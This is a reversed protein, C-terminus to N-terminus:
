SFSILARTVRKNELDSLAQNVDDLRYPPSLLENLAFSGSQYLRDYRPIDEDPKGGGGWSGRITKGCILDFPDIKIKDGFKPHSAFILAGGNQRVLSFGNEITAVSGAAEIVFDLLNNDNIDKVVASVDQNSPNITHTAGLRSALSLKDPNIDIAILASPNFTACGMLASLGIGGLGLIAISHKKKISIENLAIGAGTPLACGYLVGLRRPTASPLSVLRNESVVSYESFTTVPGANIELGRATSYVTGGADGGASKIWGLVVEDGIEFKTTGPGKQVVVGTAEHGMMHPIYNDVGRLGRAEMLQSHCIGSYYIKVLYQYKRLRPVIVDDFIELPANPSCLVAARFTEPVYRM